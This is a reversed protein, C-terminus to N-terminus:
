VNKSEKVKMKSTYQRSERKSDHIIYKLLIDCKKVIKISVRDQHHKILTGRALFVSYPNRMFMWGLANISIWLLSSGHEDRLPYTTSITENFM